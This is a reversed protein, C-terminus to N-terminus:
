IRLDRAPEISEFFLEGVDRLLAVLIVTKIQLHHLAVALELSADECRFGLAKRWAIRLERKRYEAGHEAIALTGRDFTGDFLSLVDGNRLVCACLRGAAFRDGIM